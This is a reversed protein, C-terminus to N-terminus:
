NKKSNFISRYLLDTKKFSFNSPVEIRIPKSIDSRNSYIKRYLVRQFGKM